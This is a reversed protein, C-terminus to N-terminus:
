QARHFIKQYATYANRHGKLYVYICKKKIPYCWFSIQCAYMVTTELDVYFISLHINSKVSLIDNKRLEQNTTMHNYMVSKASVVYKMSQHVCFSM